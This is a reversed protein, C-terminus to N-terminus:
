VSFKEPRACESTVSEVTTVVPSSGVVFAPRPDVSGDRPITSCKQHVLSGWLSVEERRRWMRESTRPQRLTTASTFRGWPRVGRMAVPTASMRRLRGPGEMVEELPAQGGSASRERGRDAIWGRFPLTDAGRPMGERGRTWKGLLSSLGTAWPTPGSHPTWVGGGVWSLSRGSAWVWVGKGWM